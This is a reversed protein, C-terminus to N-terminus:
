VQKERQSYRQMLWISGGILIVAIILGVVFKLQDGISGWGRGYGYIIGWFGAMMIGIPAAQSVLSTSFILWFGLGFILLGLVNAIIFVDRNYVKMADNYAKDEDAYKKQEADFAAREAERDAVCKTDTKDCPVDYAPM